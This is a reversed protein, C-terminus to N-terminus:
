AKADEIDIDNSYDVDDQEVENPQFAELMEKTETDIAMLEDVAHAQDETATGLAQTTDEEAEEDQLHQFKSTPVSQVM